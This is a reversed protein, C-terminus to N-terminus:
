PRRNCEKVTEIFAQVQPLKFYEPRYLLHTRRLFVEGSKFNLPKAIGEFGSLCIEPMISWGINREVMQMISDVDNIQLGTHRRIGNESMWRSVDAEFGVDSTRDIFPFDNLNKGEMKRGTVLCVQEEFLVVDGEAWPYDGRIIAVNAEGSILERYLDPSRRATVQVEVKPYKEIYRELTEALRYRAYNVAVGVKLTGGMEGEPNEAISRIQELNHQIKRVYPLISETVPTLVVGKKSRIFLQCGLEQEISQVRKTLASQTTYLRQATKTINHTEALDKLIEIDKDTM